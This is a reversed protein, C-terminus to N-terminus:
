GLFDLAYKNESHSSTNRGSFPFDQFLNLFECSLRVPKKKKKQAHIFDFRLSFFLNKFNLVSKQVYAAMFSKKEPVNNRTSVRPFVKKSIEKYKWFFVVCVCVCLDGAGWFAFCAHLYNISLSQQSWSDDEALRSRERHPRAM